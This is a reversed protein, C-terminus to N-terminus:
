LPAVIEKLLNQAKSNPQLQMFRLGDAYVLNHSQIRDGHEVLLEINGTAPSAILADRM